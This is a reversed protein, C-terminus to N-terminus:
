APARYPGGVEGWGWRPMPQDPDVAVGGQSNALAIRSGWELYAVFASRFEPDDPLGVEDASACLLQVWRARQAATLHRDLHHRLMGAHGGREASYTAPGGFVEALFLAVHHPHDPPMAAFVPGVLADALVRDYFVATLRELAPMGGIWEYLTPVSAGAPPRTLRAGVATPAYHRMEAIHGIFPRVAALFRQFVPDRRFGQLHGEASDWEIRLVYQTPDETCAALDYALCHPSADLATAADAYAHEFAVRHEAPISYRVYEVIM